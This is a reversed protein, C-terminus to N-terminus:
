AVMREVRLAHLVVLSVWLLLLLLVPETLRELWEVPHASLAGPILIRFPYAVRSDRLSKGQAAQLQHSKHYYDSPQLGKTIESDWPQRLSGRQPM